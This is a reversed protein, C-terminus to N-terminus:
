LALLGTQPVHSATEFPFSFSCVVFWFGFCFLFVFLVRHLDIMERQPETKGGSLISVFM